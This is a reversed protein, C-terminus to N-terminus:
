HSSGEVNSEKSENGSSKPEFNPNADCFVDFVYCLINSTVGAPSEASRNGSGDSEHSIATASFLLLLFGLKRMM